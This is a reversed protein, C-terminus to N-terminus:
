SNFLSSEIWDCIMHGIMIHSEQIIPTESSPVMITLDALQSARSDTMGTFAISKVGQSKAM